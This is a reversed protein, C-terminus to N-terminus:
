RPSCSPCRCSIEFSIFLMDILIQQFFSKMSFIMCSKCGTSSTPSSTNASCGWEDLLLLTNEGELSWSDHITTLCPVRFAYLLLATFDRQGTQFVVVLCSGQADLCMPPDWCPCGCYVSARSPLGHTTWLLIWQAILTCLWFLCAGSDKFVYMTLIHVDTILHFMALVYPSYQSSKKQEHLFLQVFIEPIKGARWNFQVIEHPDQFLPRALAVELIKPKSMVTLKGPCKNPRLQPQTTSFFSLFM